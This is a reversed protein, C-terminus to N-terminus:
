ASDENHVIKLFERADVHLELQEEPPLSSKQFSRRSVSASSMEVIAELSRVGHKYESVDLFARIVGEDINAREVSRGAEIVHEVVIDLRQEIVSRLLMGRRLRRGHWECYELKTDDGPGPTDPGKVVLYQRLRSIFDRGKAAIFHEDRLRSEFEAFDRNQGGVFVFITRPLYLTEEGDIFQGDQMPALLYKLWGFEQQDLTADFEDIFVLPLEGALGSNRIQHFARVLRNAERFQSLNFTMSQLNTQSKYGTIARAVQTIGFNKGCGPPGFVGLCLPKTWTNDDIYKTILSSIGSYNEIEHRDATMLAVHEVYPVRYESLTRFGKQVVEIPLKSRSEESPKLLQHLITWAGYEEPGIRAELSQYALLRNQEGALSKTFAELQTNLSECAAEPTIFYKPLTGLGRDFHEKAYELGFICADKIRDRLKQDTSIESAGAVSALTMAIEAVIISSYGYMTGIDSSEIAAGLRPKYADPGYILDIREVEDANTEGPNWVLVGRIGLRVIVFAVNCLRALLSKKSADENDKEVDKVARTVAESFDEAARELSLDDRIEIGSSKLSNVSLVVITRKILKRESLEELLAHQEVDLPDTTELVVCPSHKADNEKEFAELFESFRERFLSDAQDYIANRFGLQRDCLILSRCGTMRTCTRTADADTAVPEKQESLERMASFSDRMAKFFPKRAQQKGISKKVRYTKTRNALWRNVNKDWDMGVPFEDVEIFQLPPCDKNTLSVGHKDPDIIQEVSYPEEVTKSRAELYDAIRWAGGRLHFLHGDQEQPKGLEAAMRELHEPRAAPEVAVGCEYLVDGAVLIKHMSM